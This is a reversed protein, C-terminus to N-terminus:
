NGFATAAAPLPRRALAEGFTLGGGPTYRNGSSPSYLGGPTAAPLQRVQQTFLGAPKKEAVVEADVVDDGIGLLRFAGDVVKGLLPAAIGVLAKVGVGIALPVALPAATKMGKWMGVGAVIAIVIGGGAIGDVVADQIPGQAAFSEVPAVFHKVIGGGIEAALAGGATLGLGIVIPKANDKLTMATEKVVLVLDTSKSKNKDNM